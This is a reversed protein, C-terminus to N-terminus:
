GILTHYAASLESFRRLLRARKEADADPFRDPHAGAALARFARQVSVRDADPSLGLTELARVRVPDHRSPESTSKTNRARGDRARPRDRLFEDPGLPAHDKSNGPRPVRFRVEADKISFLADLARRQQLRLAESVTRDSVFLDQTLIQGVKREPGQTQRRQLQELMEDSISGQERLIDGLRRKPLSTDVRAILGNEFAIAHRRGCGSETLELTGTMRERYLAGLVDGLTTSALRSKLQV